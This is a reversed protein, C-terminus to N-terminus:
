PYFNLRYFYTPICVIVENENFKIHWLVLSALESSDSFTRLDEVKQLHIRKQGFFKGGFDLNM